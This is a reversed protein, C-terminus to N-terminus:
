KSKSQSSILQIPLKLTLKQWFGCINKVNNNVFFEWVGQILINLDTMAHPGFLFDKSLM